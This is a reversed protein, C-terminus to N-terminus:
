RPAFRSTAGCYFWTKFTRNDIDTRCEEEVISMVARRFDPDTRLDSSSMGAVAANAEKAFGTAKTVDNFFYGAFFALAVLTKLNM